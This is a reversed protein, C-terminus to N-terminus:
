EKGRPGYHDKMYNAGGGEEHSDQAYEDNGIIKGGTDRCWTMTRLEQFLARAVPHRRAEDCAHNNEFVNWTVTSNARDFGIQFDAHEFLMTRKNAPAFNKKTPKRPKDTKEAKGPFLAFRIYCDFDEGRHYDFADRDEWEQIFSFGRKGKGKGLLIDRARTALELLGDRYRNEADVVEGHVRSFAKTPLKITGREWENRSM